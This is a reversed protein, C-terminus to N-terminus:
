FIYGVVGVSFNLNNGKYSFKDFNYRCYDLELKVGLHEYLNLMTGIGGFIINGDLTIEGPNSSAYSDTEAMLRTFLIGGTVYPYIKSNKNGFAYGAHPGIEFQETGNAGTRQYDYGIGIGVFLGKLVFHSFSSNFSIANTGNGDIDEFLKGDQHNFNFGGAVMFSNKDIGFEQALLVSSMFLFCNISLLKLFFSKM